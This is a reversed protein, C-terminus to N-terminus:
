LSNFFIIISGNSLHSINFEIGLHLFYGDVHISLGDSITKRTNSLTLTRNVEGDNGTCNIGSYLVSNM